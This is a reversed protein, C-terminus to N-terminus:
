STSLQLISNLRSVHDPADTAILRGYHQNIMQTSCHGMQNALWEIPVAGSTLLQSAYTHRGNNASRYRVGCAALHSRWRNKVQDYNYHSKTTSCYWLWKVKEQKTTRNDRNLITIKEPPADSVLVIQKKVADLAPALLQVSRKRRRTKTVRYAGRVCSRNVYVTGQELDIDDVSLCVLEHMSLGSWLMFTWLNKLDENTDHGLIKEIEERDFPDIDEPDPLRITIGKSPDQADPYQREYMQWIKRFRTLVERVTKSSLKRLLGDIWVDIDDATIAAPNLLGWHPRIHNEIHSHYSHWSSPAVTNQYRSIWRDIYYNFQNQKLHKSDPFHRARDFTGLELEASIITSINRARKLNEPNPEMRITERQIKNDSDRWWIRISKALTEIGASSM